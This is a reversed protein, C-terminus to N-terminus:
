AQEPISQIPTAATINQASLSAMEVLDAIPTNPKNVSSGRCICNIRHEATSVRDESKRRILQKLTTYNHYAPFFKMVFFIFLQHTWFNFKRTEDLEENGQDDGEGLIIATVHSLTKFNPQRMIGLQLSCWSVCDLQLKGVVRKSQKLFTDLARRKNHCLTVGVFFSFTYKVFKCSM